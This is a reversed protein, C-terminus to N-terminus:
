VFFTAMVPVHDSPHTACPLLKNDVIVDETSSELLDVGKFWIWDIKHSVIEERKKCTTHSLLSHANTYGECLLEDLCSGYDLSSENMDGAIIVRENDLVKLLHQVQQFRIGTFPKKAKLHTTVIRVGEIRVSVYEQSCDPYTGLIIDDVQFEQPHCLLCQHIRESKSDYVVSYGLRSFLDLYWELQDVEQLCVVYKELCWQEIKQEILPSRHPWALIAPDTHPFGQPSNDACITALTNFSVVKLSNM